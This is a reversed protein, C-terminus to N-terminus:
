LQEPSARRKRNNQAPPWNRRGAGGSVSAWGPYRWGACGMSSPEPVGAIQTTITFTVAGTAGNTGARTYAPPTGNQSANNTSDLDIGSGGMGVYSPWASNLGATVTNSNAPPNPNFGGMGTANNLSEVAYTTAGATSGATITLTGLLINNTVSGSTVASKSLNAGTNTSGSNENAELLGAGTSTYGSRVPTDFNSGNANGTTTNGALGTITTTSGSIQNVFFGAGTLGGDLAIISQNQAYQPSSGTIPTITETLYINVTVSGGAQVTSSGQVVATYQYSVDARAISTGLGSLLALAFLVRRM